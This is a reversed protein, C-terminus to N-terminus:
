TVALKYHLREVHTHVTHPSIGLDTAIALETCDDFVSRVIQLERRSLKLSRAIETWAQGSFIGSGSTRPHQLHKVGDARAPAYRQRRTRQAHIAEAKVSRNRGVRIRRVVTRCDPMQHPDCHLDSIRLCTLQFILLINESIPPETSLRRWM